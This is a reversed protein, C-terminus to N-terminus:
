IRDPPKKVAIGAEELAERWAALKVHQPQSANAPSTSPLRRYRLDERSLGPRVWRRFSTEAKAGNFLVAEISRHRAFFGEFDNVRVTDNRIASDLSGERECSALVDWLAIGATRLRDVRQAYPLAQSAGVLLGMFPWFRNQPHAYYAQAALSASGPMSGLILVRATPAAIPPFGQLRPMTM